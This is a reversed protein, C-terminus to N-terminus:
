GCRTLPAEELLKQYLRVLRRGIKDMSYEEATMRAARSLRERLATDNAISKILTVFDNINRGKLCNIDNKLWTRYEPLDRVVLPLGCASAELLVLSQTEGHSPFFFLDGGSLAAQMDDVFGPMFLNDPKNKIKREMKLHFALVGWSQGYWVFDYQPLLQAAEIFDLVGKRPIVNGAAIVTFKTLSLRARNQARKEPSFVMKSTDICNPVVEIPEPLGQALLLEKARVSPTFIADSSRYYHRLYREYFPAILNALLFSNKLDFSGVSHAHVVVKKGAKKAAKLYHFSRPGYSHIHLLDYDNNEPDTCVKVGLRELAKKHNNFATWFGSKKVLPSDSFELYLCVKM